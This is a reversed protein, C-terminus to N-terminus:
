HASKSIEVNVQHKMRILKVTIPDNSDIVPLVKANFIERAHKMQLRLSMGKVMDVTTDSLKHLDTAFHAQSTRLLAHFAEKRVDFDLEEPICISRYRAMIFAFTRFVQEFQFMHALIELYTEKKLIFSSKVAYNGDILNDGNEIRLMQNTKALWRRMRQRRQQVSGANKDQGSEEQNGSEAILKSCVEMAEVDEQREKKSMARTLVMGCTESFGCFHCNDLNSVSTEPLFKNPMGLFSFSGNEVKAVIDENLTDFRNFKKPGFRYLNSNIIAVPDHFLKMM